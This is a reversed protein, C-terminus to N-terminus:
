EGISSDFNVIWDQEQVRKWENIESWFFSTPRCITLTYIHLYVRWMWLYQGKASCWEGWWCVMWSIVLEKGLKGSVHMKHELYYHRSYPIGSSVNETIGNLKKVQVSRTSLTPPPPCLWLRPCLWLLKPGDQTRQTYKRRLDVSNWWM